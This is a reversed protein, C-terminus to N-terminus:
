QIEKMCLEVKQKKKKKKKKKKKQELVEFTVKAGKVLPEGVKVGKDDGVMLVEDLVVNKGVEGDLKEVKIVDGEAVRYQKGGTKVVAFMVQRKYVDSAASSRSQTSRPPRRIM